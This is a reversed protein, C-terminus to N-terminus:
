LKTIDLYLIYGVSSDRYVTKTCIEGEPIASLLNVMESEDRTILKWEMMSEMYAQTGYDHVFNGVLLRGSSALCQFLIKTLQVAAVQSLYDYLGSCFIFDFRGLQVTGRIVEKISANMIEIKHNSYRSQVTSLALPDQDLGVIRGIKGSQVAQSKEVESLHGCAVSLVSCNPHTVAISDIISAALECRSRVARASASEGATYACINHGLATVTSLESPSIGHYIYDLLVADGSFGRPKEVSRRTFPDQLLLDHLPHARAESRCFDTWEQTSAQTRMHHLDQILRDMTNLVAPQALDSQVNLSAYAQDLILNPEMDLTVGSCDDKISEQESSYDMRM